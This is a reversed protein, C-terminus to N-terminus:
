RGPTAVRRFTGCLVSRRHGGRPCLCPHFPPTLAWRTEPSPPPVAFGVRLLALCPHPAARATAASLSSSTGPLGSSAAPLRRGLSIIRGPPEGEPSPAPSLVRSIASGTRGKTRARLETPYLAHRRLVLDCTRIRDPAHTFPIGVLVQRTPIEYKRCVRNPRQLTGHLTVRRHREEARPPVRRADGGPVRLRPRRVERRTRAAPAPEEAIILDLCPNASSYLPEATKLHLPRVSTVM